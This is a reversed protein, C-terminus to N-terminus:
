LQFPIPVFTLAFLLVCGWAAVRRAPSLPLAPDWVGPHRVRGRGLLLIVGAWIWWGYWRFGLAALAALFLWAAWQQRREGLAYLVHGGDLQSLPFLNLATVFCGLWGAFALPHLLVVGGGPGVAAALWRFLLSGGVWVPWGGFVIAFPAPAGGTPVAAAQSWAMGLVAAPLAVVFGALPGAAGVDLLVTRNLITSRLRIFAGFTGILNIWYPVPVFFPPSVDMRHWLGALYHGMEHALLIALLPVSFALGAPVADVIVGVPVRLALGGWSVPALRLASHGALVAGSETVTALTLAFLLGHLWWRERRPPGIRRVLTLETGRPTRHVYRKGKWSRLASRAPEADPDLGALLSGTVVEDSRLLAVRYHLFVESWHIM